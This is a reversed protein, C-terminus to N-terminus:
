LCSALNNHVCSMRLFTSLKNISSCDNFQVPPTMIACVVCMLIIIIDLIYSMVNYKGELHMCVDCTHTCVLSCKCAYVHMPGNTYKSCIGCLICHTNYADRSRQSMCDHLKCFQMPKYWLCYIVVLPWAMGLNGM